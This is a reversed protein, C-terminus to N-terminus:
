EQSGAMTSGSPATAPKGRAQKRQDRKYRKFERDKALFQAVLAPILEAIKPKVGYDAEYAEAYLDLDAQLEADIEIRHRQPPQDSNLRDISVNAM